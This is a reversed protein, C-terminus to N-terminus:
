IMKRLPVLVKTITLMNLNKLVVTIEEREKIVRREKLVARIVRIIKIKLLIMLNKKFIKTM